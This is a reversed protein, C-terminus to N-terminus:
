MLGDALEVANSSHNRLFQIVNNIRGDDLLSDDVVRIHLYQEDLRLELVPVLLNGGNQSQSGDLPLLNKGDVGQVVPFSAAVELLHPNAPSLMRIDIAYLFGGFTVPSVGRFSGLLFGQFGIDSVITCQFLSDYLYLYIAM